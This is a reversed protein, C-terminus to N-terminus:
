NPMPLLLLRNNVQDVIVALNTFPDIAVGLTPSGPLSYTQRTKLPSSLTDVISVSNGLTNVTLIAGTQQNMALSTPNIGVNVSTASGTDPNFASIVNSGSSNAYFVGNNTTGTFVTPDFVIGTPSSSVTGTTITTSKSPTELGIDVVDLAGIPASGSVLELATVVAIGQNFTGRDPDIAVAVPLQDVGATLATLTTPATTGSPPFLLSLDILSVTGSGNNAVVAV